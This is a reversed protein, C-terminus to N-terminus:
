VLPADRGWITMEILQCENEKNLLSGVSGMTVAHIVNEWPYELCQLHPWFM